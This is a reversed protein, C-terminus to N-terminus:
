HERYRQGFPVAVPILNSVDDRLGLKENKDKLVPFRSPAPSMTLDM